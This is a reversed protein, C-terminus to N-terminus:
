PASRKGKPPPPWLDKRELYERIAAIAEITANSVHREALRDLQEVLPLPVRIIRDSRGKIGLALLQLQRKRHCPRCVTVCGDLSYPSGPTTRHVDLQRGYREVHQENTFDCDICRMGDRLRVAIKIRQSV